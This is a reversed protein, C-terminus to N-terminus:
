AVRLKVKSAALKANVRAQEVTPLQIPCNTSHTHDFFIENAIPIVTPSPRLSPFEEFTKPWFALAFAQILLVAQLANKERM